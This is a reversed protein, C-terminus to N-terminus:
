DLCKRLILSIGKKAYEWILTDSPSDGLISIHIVPLSPTFQIKTPLNEDFLFGNM